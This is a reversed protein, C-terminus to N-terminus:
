CLREPSEIAFSQCGITVLYGFNKPEITVTRRDPASYPINSATIVSGPINVVSTGAHTHVYGVSATGTQTNLNYIDNSGNSTAQNLNNSM